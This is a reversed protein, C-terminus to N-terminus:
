NWRWTGGLPRTEAAALARRRQAADLREITTQVRGLAEQLARQAQALAALARDLREAQARGNM